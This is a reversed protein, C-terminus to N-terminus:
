AIERLKAQALVRILSNANREVEFYGGSTSLQRVTLSDSGLKKFWYPALSCQASGTALDESIGIKPAFYRLVYGCQGDSATVILAHYENLKRFRDDDPQFSLVMEVTPFVLVLDRTSFVDISGAAVDSIEEPVPCAIGEWSPLVLTYLGNRKTIVVEGYKSNFVVNDLQYKSIIAAGAGLSGHGCLNIEGDLAFWRIHFQGEIKTIFSMVPLGVDRTIQSLESDPLWDNLELVACPNGSASEGIFVDYIDVKIVCRGRNCNLAWNLPSCRRWGFRFCQAM